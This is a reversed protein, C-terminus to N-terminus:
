VNYWFLDYFCVLSSFIIYYAYAINPVCDQLIKNKKSKLLKLNVFM